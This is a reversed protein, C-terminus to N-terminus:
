IEMEANPVYIVADYIGDGNGDWSIECVWWTLVISMLPMIVVMMMETGPRM